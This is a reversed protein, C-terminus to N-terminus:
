ICVIYKNNKVQIAPNSTLQFYPENSAALLATIGENDDRIRSVNRSIKLVNYAQIAAVVSDM